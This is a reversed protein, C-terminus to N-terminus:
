LRQSIIWNSPRIKSFIPNTEAVVPGISLILNGLDQCSFFNVYFLWWCTGLAYFPPPSFHGTSPESIGFFWRPHFSGQLYRSLRGILQNTPDRGDVDMLPIEAAPLHCTNSKGHRWHQAPSPNGCDWPNKAPFFEMPKQPLHHNNMATSGFSFSVSDMKKPPPTFGFDGWFQDPHHNWINKIKLGIQPLNGNQSYYKESPDFGGVLSPKVQKSAKSANNKRYLKKSRPIM